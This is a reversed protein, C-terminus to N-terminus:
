DWGNNTNTWDFFFIINELEIIAKDLKREDKPYPNLDEVISNMLAMNSLMEHAIYNRKEVINELLSIFDSRLGKEKLEKVTKGLTWKEMEDLDYNFKEQLLKKLGFELIQIVGMFMGYKALFTLNEYKQLGEKMGEHIQETTLHNETSM